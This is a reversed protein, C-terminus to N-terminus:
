YLYIEMWWPRIKVLYGNVIILNLLSLNGDMLPRIKVYEVTLVWSVEGFMEMWWHDSKLAILAETLGIGALINGDMLPRIKVNYNKYYIIFFVSNGDM